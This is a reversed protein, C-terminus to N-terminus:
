SWVQPPVQWQAGGDSQPSTGGPLGEIPPMGNPFGYHEPIEINQVATHLAERCVAHVAERMTKLRELNLVKGVAGLGGSGHSRNFYQQLLVSGNRVRWMNWGLYLSTGYSFVSVYVYHYGDVLVLRNETSGVTSPTRLYCTWIPLARERLKGAINSYVSNTAAARGALLTCWESIPEVHQSTLFAIWIGVFVVVMLVAGVIIIVGQNGDGSPGVSSSSSSGPIGGITLGILAFLIFTALAL